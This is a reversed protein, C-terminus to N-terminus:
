NLQVITVKTVGTNAYPSAEDYVKFSNRFDQNVLEGDQIYVRRRNQERQAYYANSRSKGRKTPRDLRSVEGFSETTYNSVVDKGLIREAITSAEENTLIGKEVDTYWDLLLTTCYDVDKNEKM